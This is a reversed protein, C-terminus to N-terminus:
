YFFILCKPCILGSFNYNINNDINLKLNLEKNVRKKRTTDQKFLTLYFINYIRWKKPLELKYVQKKIPYLVLFPGFFKFKLM